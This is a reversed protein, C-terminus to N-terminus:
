VVEKKFDDILRNIDLDGTFDSVYFHANSELWRCAQEGYIAKGVKLGAEFAAHFVNWVADLISTTAPLLINNSNEKIIKRLEEETM